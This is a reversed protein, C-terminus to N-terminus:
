KDRKRQKKQKQGKYKRWSVYSLTLVIMSGTMTIVWWISPDAEDEDVNSFLKKLDDELEDLQSSWEKHSIEKRYQDIYTIKADLKQLREIPLDIKLSPQIITYTSLFTNLKQEYRHRDGELAANKVQSFAELIPSEMEAWLPQHTSVVADMALRFTTVHRIREEQDLDISTVAKLAEHHTVTLVRLEDMSFTKDHVGHESFLHAFQELLRKAEEHRTFKTMQLAEDALQDLETLSSKTETHVTTTQFFLCFSLLIASLLKM